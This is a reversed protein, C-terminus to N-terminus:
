TRGEVGEELTKELNNLKNLSKKVVPFNTLLGGAWRANIFYSGSKIAEDKVIDAAQTKTGVMLVNGKQSVETLFEVASKLGEETKAVDIIHINNKDGFIYKRMKPNWRKTEHGFQVGSKLLDKNSPIAVKTRATKQAE